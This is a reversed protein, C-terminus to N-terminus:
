WRPGSTRGSSGNLRWLLALGAYTLPASSVFLLLLWWSFNELSVALYTGLFFMMASVLLAVFRMRVGRKLLFWLSLSTVVTIISGAVFADLM